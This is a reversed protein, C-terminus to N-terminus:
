RTAVAGRVSRNLMAQGALVKMGARWIEIGGAVKVLAFVVGGREMDNIVESLMERDEPSEGYPNTLPTMMRERAWEPTTVIYSNYNM